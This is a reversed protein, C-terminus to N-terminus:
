KEFRVPKQLFLFLIASLIAIGTITVFYYFQNGKDLLFASMLNGFIMNGQFIMWFVSYYFGRKSEPACDSFYKGQGM